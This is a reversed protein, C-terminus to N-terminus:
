SIFKAKFYAMSILLYGLANVKCNQAFLRNAGSDLELQIEKKVFAQNLFDCVRQDSQNIAPWLQVWLSLFGIGVSNRFTAFM